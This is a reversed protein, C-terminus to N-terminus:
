PPMSIMISALPLTSSGTSALAGTLTLRDGYAPGASFASHSPSARLPRGLASSVACQCTLTPGPGLRGGPGGPGHGSGPGAAGPGARAAVAARRPGVRVRRLGPRGATIGVRSLWGLAPGSGGDSVKFGLRTSRNQDHTAPVVGGHGPGPWLHQDATLRRELGAGGQQPSM